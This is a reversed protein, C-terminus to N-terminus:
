EHTKEALWRDIDAAVLDLPRPGNALIIQHFEPLNFNAGLTQQARQRQSWIFQRGTMYSVAQGPWVTYRDVETEMASRAQGTTEVLYDVARERSWRQYHLGTDTVLRAARFLISQLYGVKGLPDDQYVGHENALDEAYLAWGEGYVPLWILQRTISHGRQEAILASELHHGPLAEHYLLTPLSYAPWEATNRLNIFFTAPSSGDASAPSYYGGPANDSLIDPVPAITIDISPAALILSPLITRAQELHTYLLNLLADRGDADNAFIQDPLTNLQALRETIAGESFGAEQLAINLEAQISAVIALGDEHLTAPDIGKQGTYFELSARYYNDGDSIAWVGPAERANEALTTLADSFNAYAPLLDDRIIRDIERLMRQRTEPALSENALTLNQFTEFLPHPRDAPLASLQDSLQIMRAFIFEPPAIGAQFEASIRRRDDDIADALLDLREVYAWAEEENRINQRNVLLDPLDIYAGSLQDAAYPRSYGFSIQGHGYKSMDVLSTLAARTVLLNTHTPESLGTEDIRDLQTITELRQLRRREFAAQSRDDLKSTYVYGAKEASLGLRSATEPTQRLEARGVDAIIKDVELARKSLSGSGGPETDGCAAIALSVSLILVSTEIFRIM